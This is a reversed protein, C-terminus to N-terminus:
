HISDEHLMEFLEHNDRYDVHVGVIVPGKDFAKKMVPAIDDAGVAGAAQFTGVVPLNNRSIFTQLAQANAPKSALMGLLVVPNSAANILRAAERTAAEDAPSLGAFAPAPLPDHACPETMVDKPLHVYAAGPRGSEAARFANALVESLQDPTGVTASFKTVPKVERDYVGAVLAGSISVQFLRHVPVGFYQSLAATVVSSATGNRRTVEADLAAKLSAPITTDLNAM